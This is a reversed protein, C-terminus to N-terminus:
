RVLCGPEQPLHNAEVFFDTNVFKSRIHEV